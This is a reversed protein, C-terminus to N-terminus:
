LTEFSVLREELEVEECLINRIRAFKPGEKKLWFMLRDIDDDKGQAIIEVTSNPLNKAYGSIGLSNAKKKTSYRFGVGQVKGSIVCKITKM